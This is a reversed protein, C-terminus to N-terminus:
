TIEPFANKKIYKEYVSVIGNWVSLNIEELFPETRGKERDSFYYM